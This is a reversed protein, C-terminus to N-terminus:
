QQHKRHLKIWNYYGYISNCLYMVYMVLLPLSTEGNQFYMATWLAITMMNVIIWLAWQERYRLVMLIQAVISIVVTAGDLIALASGLYKLLEIYLFTGIITTIAVIVWQKATLAKAIVEEVGANNVTNESTMNKRWFYFGIFQVPVYVLLNLMMEGYLQFTYSIYAYLSVSILGFLYNSIKGKGVFVVCLIGTIAAITAIWTDPQYIFIGIQIALFVILWSAEFTTWGSFFEQKLKTSFSSCDM